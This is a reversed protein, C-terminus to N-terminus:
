GVGVKVGVRVSVRLLIKEKHIKTINHKHIQIYHDVFTHMNPYPNNISVYNGFM